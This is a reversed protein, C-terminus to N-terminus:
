PRVLEVNITSGNTPCRVKVTDTRSGDTWVRHTHQSHVAGCKCPHQYMVSWGDCVSPAPVSKGVTAVRCWSHTRLAFSVVNGIVPESPLVRAPVPVPLPITELIPEELSAVLPVKTKPKKKKITDM